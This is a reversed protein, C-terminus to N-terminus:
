PLKPTQDDNILGQHHKHHQLRHLGPVPKHNTHRVDHQADVNHSRKWVEVVEEEGWLHKRQDNHPQHLEISLLLM